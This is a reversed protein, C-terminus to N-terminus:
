PIHDASTMKCLYLLLKFNKINVVWTNYLQFLLFLIININIIEIIYSRNREKCPLILSKSCSNCFDFTVYLLFSLFIIELLESVALNVSAFDLKSIPIFTDNHSLPNFAVGTCCTCSFLMM